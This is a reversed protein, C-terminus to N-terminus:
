LCKSDIDRSRLILSRPNIFFPAKLAGKKQNLIYFKLFSFRSKTQLILRHNQASIRLNTVAEVAEKATSLV